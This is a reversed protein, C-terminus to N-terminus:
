SNILSSPSRHHSIFYPLQLQLTADTRVDSVNYTVRHWETCLTTLLLEHPYLGVIGNTEQLQGALIVQAGRLDTKGTSLRKDDHV